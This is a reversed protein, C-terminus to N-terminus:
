LGGCGNRGIVPRAKVDATVETPAKRIAVPRKRRARCRFSAVSDEEAVLGPEIIPDSFQNGADLGVGGPAVQLIFIEARIPDVGTPGSLVPKRGNGAPDAEGIVHRQEIHFAASSEGAAFMEDGGLVGEWTSSLPLLRLVAGVPPKPISYANHFLQVM